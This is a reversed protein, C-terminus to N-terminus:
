FSKWCDRHQALLELACIAALQTLAFCDLTRHSVYAQLALTRVLKRTVDVGANAFDNSGAVGQRREDPCSQASESAGVPTCSAGQRPSSQRRTATGDMVTTVVGNPGAVRNELGTSSEDASCIDIAATACQPLHQNNDGSARNLATAPARSCDAQVFKVVALRVIDACQTRAM